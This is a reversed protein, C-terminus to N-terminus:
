KSSFLTNLDADETELIRDVWAHFRPAGSENQGFMVHELAGAALARQQGLGTAYDETLVVTELFDFQDIASQRKDPPPPEEMLYVLRTNSQGVHEGPLVQSIMVGRGGGDFSAMSVGPFLAWVGILAYRDSWEAEPLHGLANAARDPPVMRQHPGWSRYLARNGLSVGGRGFTNKHLVPLHYYDLYGDFALKWNPGSLMKSGFFHWHQLNFAELMKDFGSLFIDIDLSSKPDLIGLILGAREVVPLAKLSHKKRDIDGFDHASAVALLEGKEGYTWGHYPCTFRRANGQAQPAVIAGRHACGNIFGRVVGDTGRVLLVPVGAAVLTKYDGARSLEVSAGLLLPVRRFLGAVEREFRQPSTYEKAAIKQIAPALEFTGAMGHRVGDRTAEAIQENEMARSM